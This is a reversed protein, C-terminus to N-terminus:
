YIGKSVTFDAERLKALLSNPGVLHYLGVVVMTPKPEDLMAEFRRVWALNRDATLKMYLEPYSRREYEVFAEVPAIRGALWSRSLRECGDRGLLVGDVAFCLFQTEQIPSMGGFWSFVDDKTAFESALPIGANKAQASLVTNASAGTLGFANYGADELTAGVLWPRIGVFEALNVKASVAARELRSEQSPSLLGLPSPSASMGFRKVLAATSERYTQNTETWLKGCRLLLAEVAPVHWAQPRPLTEGLLYVSRGRKRVTWIPVSADPTAWAVTPLAAAGVALFSHRIFCRRSSTPAHLIM